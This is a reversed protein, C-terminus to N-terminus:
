KATMVYAHGAPTFAFLKRGDVLSSSPLWLFNKAASLASSASKDAVIPKPLVAGDSTRLSWTQTGISWTLATENAAFVRIPSGSDLLGIKVTERHTWERKGSAADFSGVDAQVVLAGPEPSTTGVFIRGSAYAIWAQDVRQIWRWSAMQKREGSHVDVRYLLVSSTDAQSGAAYWIYPGGDTVAVSALFREGTCRWALGGTDPDLAVITRELPLVKPDQVNRGVSVLRNGVMVPAGAVNRGVEAEWILGYDRKLEAIASQGEKSDIGVLDVYRALEKGARSASGEAKWLRARLLVLAPDDPDLASAKDAFIRAQNLDRKTLYVQALERLTAKDTVANAALTIRNEKIGNGDFIFLRGSSPLVAPMGAGSYQWLVKGTEVDVASLQELTNYLIATQGFYTVPGIPAVPQYEWRKKGNLTFNYLTLNARILLGAGGVHDLIVGVDPGAIKITNRVAGSAADLVIAEGVITALYLRNGYVRIQHVKRKLPARWLIRYRSLDIAVFDLDKSLVFLVNGQAMAGVLWIPPLLLSPRAADVLPELAIEGKTKGTEPDVVFVRREYEFVVFGKDTLLESPKDSQFPVTWADSGDSKRIARYMNQSRVIFIDGFAKTHAIWPSEVGGVVLGERRWLLNGTRGELLDIRQLGPFYIYFADGIAAYIPNGNKLDDFEKHWLLESENSFAYLGLRREAPPVSLDFAPIVTLSGNGFANGTLILHEDAVEVRRVTHKELNVFQLTTSKGDREAYVVRQLPSSKREAFMDRQLHVDASDNVSIIGHAAGSSFMPDWSWSVVRAPESQPLSKKFAEIAEDLRNIKSLAVGRYHNAGPYEPDLTLTQDFSKIADSPLDNKIYYLGKSFAQFAEPSHGSPPTPKQPEPTPTPAATTATVVARPIPSLSSRWVYLAAGIIIVVSALLLATRVSSAPSRVIPPHLAKRLEAVSALRKDRDMELCRQIAPKVDAPVNDPLRIPAPPRPRTGSLMQGLLLGFSFLDARADCAAGTGQEPARYAPTGGAVTDFDGAGDIARAQGFDSVKAHGDRTLLINEPKLDQHIIGNSHIAELGNLIEDAIFMAKSFALPGQNMVDGLTGGDVYEMAIGKSGDPNEFYDYVRVVNPHTVLRATSLERKPIGPGDFVKVAVTQDTMPDVAKYVTAWAGRGIPEELKYRKM